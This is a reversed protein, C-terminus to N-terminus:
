NDCSQLLLGLRVYDANRTHPDLTILHSHEQACGLGAVLWGGM